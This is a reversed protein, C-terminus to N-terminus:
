LGRHASSVIETKHVQPLIIYKYM